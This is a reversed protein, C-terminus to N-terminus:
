ATPAASQHLGRRLNERPAPQKSLPPMGWRRRPMALDFLNRISSHALTIVILHQTDLAGDGLDLQLLRKAPQRHFVVGIATGVVGRRLLFELLGLLGVLNKGVAVLARHVVLMAVRSEFAAHTAATAG